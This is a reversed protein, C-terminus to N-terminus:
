PTAPLQGSTTGPAPNLEIVEGEQLGSLITVYEADLEKGIRVLRLERKNDKLVYVSPLSGRRVLASRPIVPLNQKTVEQDRISVEAYQGPRTQKSIPVIDFKVTITHRQPDAIPFIQAVQVEIPKDLVDIKAMLMDGVKLGSELRAPVEVQIQLHETDAFTLLPQGPQVTDGIEVMKKTIVGEFPAKGVADRLKADLQEISSQAQLFTGRAQDVQTGRSVLQARRDLDSDGLGMMNNVPETFFQDLMFPMGMGGPVNPNSVSNPSWYERSYQMGANRLVADANMLQAVAARRQALLEAEDVAVLVTETKFYNGEEGALYKVRGPIQASLTVEKRPIVTGGLTVAAGSDNRSQVIYSEAAHALWANSGM